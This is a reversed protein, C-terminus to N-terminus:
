IQRSPPGKSSVKRRDAPGAPANGGAQNNIIVNVMVGQNVAQFMMDVTELIIMEPQVMGEVLKNFPFARIYSDDYRMGLPTLLRIVSQKGANFFRGGAKALQKRL